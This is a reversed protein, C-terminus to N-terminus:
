RIKSAVVESPNSVPRAMVVNMKMMRTPGAMSAVNRRADRRAAKSAGTRMMSGTRQAVASGGSVVPSHDARIVGPDLRVVERVMPGHRSIGLTLCRGGGNRHLLNLVGDDVTVARDGGTGGHGGQPVAGEADDEEPCEGGVDAGPHLVDHETGVGVVEGM